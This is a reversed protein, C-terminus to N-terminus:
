FFYLIGLTAHIAALVMTIYVAHLHNEIKMKGKLAMKGIYVTTLLSIIVAIGLYMILPKGFIM